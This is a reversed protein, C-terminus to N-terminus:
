KHRIVEFRQLKLKQGKPIGAKQRAIDIQQDVSNVGELDPLLLGRRGGSSVIVGYRRVDLYSEDPIDEIEGLVDVYYVIKSLESEEVPEFRPDESCASVGNRLIEEAVSGTVPSVTGICGRLIGNIKMSVFVGARSGLMEGKERDVVDETILFDAVSGRKGTKVFTEVSYRALRVYEDEGAKISALRRRENEEFRLDFHRSEDVGKPLFAAVGYGVGFPGEYSLLESGVSIGDFAGAMIRFSRLGCEAASECFDEDFSLFQLFDGDAMAETVQSDFKPGDPSFGYPGDDKLKHSLDGSAIIVVRRGLKEATQAILKGLKYHETASQGSLGIRVVKYGSYKQGIFYLPIMTAHDLSRDKEGLTGARLDSEKAESCLEKVFETDYEVDIQVEPARYDAFSGHASSGPSIHFYDAYMVTHPSLVVITEPKLQAVREAVETCADVTKQIIKEEGNGVQPIILPPHPMIFAGVISVAYFVSM